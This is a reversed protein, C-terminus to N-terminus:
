LGFFSAVTTAVSVIKGITDLSSSSGGSALSSIISTEFAVDNATIDEAIGQGDSSGSLIGEAESDTAEAITQQANDYTSQAAGESQVYSGVSQANEVLGSYNGSEQFGEAEDTGVFLELASKPDFVLTTFLGAIATKDDMANMFENMAPEYLDQLTEKQNLISGFGSGLKGTLYDTVSGVAYNSAGGFAGKLLGSALDSLGSAASAKAPTVLVFVVALIMLLATAKRISWAKMAHNKVLFIRKNFFPKIFSKKM